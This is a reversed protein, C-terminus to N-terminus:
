QKPITLMMEFNGECSITEIATTLIFSQMAKVPQGAVIGEGAIITCIVYGPNEREYSGNLSWREISFYDGNCLYEISNDGDMKHAPASEIAPDPILTTDKVEKIHLDRLKGAADRRDYDYVRYTIDSSQQVEYVLTGGKVAHIKGAPVYFFDGKKVPQERLLKKWEGQDVMQCFEEHTQATHGYVITGGEEVDLIYWSETKGNPENHHAQAYADDPHVQVSLDSKADLIKILLPFVGAEDTTKGFLEPHEQYVQNLAQGDFAGGYIRSPARDYASVIWAEGYPVKSEPTDFIKPIRSGGWIKEEFVPSLFLIGDEASKQTCNKLSM